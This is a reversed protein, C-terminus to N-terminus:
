GKFFCECEGKVELALLQYEWEYQDLPKMMHVFVIGTNLPGEVKVVCVTLLTIGPQFWWEVPLFLTCPFEDEFTRPGNSGPFGVDQAWM